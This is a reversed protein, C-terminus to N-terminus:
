CEKAIYLLKVTKRLKFYGSYKWIGSYKLFYSNLNNKKAASKIM